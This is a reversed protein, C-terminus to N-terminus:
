HALLSEVQAVAEALREEYSGSVEVFRRGLRRLEKRYARFGRTAAEVPLSNGGSSNVTPEILVYLDAPHEEAVQRVARSPRRVHDRHWVWVSFADTDCVLLTSAGLKAEEEFRTQTHAIHAFEEPWWSKAGVATKDAIYISAYEPVCVTGFREALGQALATKGSGEPGVICVRPVRTSGTRAPADYLIATHSSM